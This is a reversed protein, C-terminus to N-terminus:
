KRKVWNPGVESKKLQRACEPIIPQISDWIYFRWEGYEWKVERIKYIPWSTKKDTVLQGIAFKPKPRRKANKQM